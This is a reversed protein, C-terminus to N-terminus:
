LGREGEGGGEKRGESRAERGGNRRKWMRRGRPLRRKM